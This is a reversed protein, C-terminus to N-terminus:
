AVQSSTDNTANKGEEAATVKEEIEFPTKYCEEYVKVFEPQKRLNRFIPWEKYYVQHFSEDHVLRRMHRYAAEFDDKLVSVALKFRDETASWDMADLVSKCAEENKDWKHAQALNIALIRKASEEYHAMQQQTFFELIRIAVEYEGREILDYTVEILNKDIKEIESKLIKRWIVHTLKVGIEYLCTFASDFYHRQCM